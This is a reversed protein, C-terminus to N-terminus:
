INQPIRPENMRKVTPLEMDKDHELFQSGTKYSGSKRRENIFRIIAGAFIIGLGSCTLTAPLVIRKEFNDSPIQPKSPSTTEIIIANVNINMSHNSQNQEYTTTYSPLSTFSRKTETTLSRSQAIKANITCTVTCPISIQDENDSLADATISHTRVTTEYVTSIITADTSPIPPKVEDDPVPDCFKFSKSWGVSTCLIQGKGLLLYGKNCHYSASSGFTQGTITYYGNQLDNPPGCLKPMCSMLPESWTLNAQCIVFNPTSDNWRYGPLCGYYVVQGVPFSQQILYQEEPVASKVLPPKHCQGPNDTSCVTVFVAVILPVEQWM